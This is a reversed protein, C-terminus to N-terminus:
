YDDGKSELWTEFEEECGEFYDCGEGYKKDLCTNLASKYWNKHERQKGAKKHCMSWVKRSKTTFAIM